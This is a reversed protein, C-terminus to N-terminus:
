STFALLIRLFLSVSLILVACRLLCTQFKQITLKLLDLRRLSIPFLIFYTGSLVALIQVGLQADPLSM